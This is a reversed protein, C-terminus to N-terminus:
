VERVINYLHDLPKLPGEMPDGHYGFAVNESYLSDKFMECLITSIRLPNPSARWQTEMIGLPLLRDSPDRVRRDSM